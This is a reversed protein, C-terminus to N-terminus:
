RADLISDLYAMMQPGTWDQPGIIKRDIRGNRDIIYTEPYMTTGYDLASKKTPDRYTPFDIHYTKLFDAYANQDDDLSVGLITGDRRAIHKQLEILSPTEDVCPPCWTAWFNLIVVKGRLDALNQTKGDVTFDFNKAPRGRMSAEGQRYDPRVFLWLLAAIFALVLGTKLKRALTPTPNNPTVKPTVKWKLANDL